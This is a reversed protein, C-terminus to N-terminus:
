EKGLLKDLRERGEESGCEEAKSYWYVAESLNKETGLGNEYCYGLACFADEEDRFGMEDSPIEAVKHYYELAKELDKEVGHGLFYCNGLM